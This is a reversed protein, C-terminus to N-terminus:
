RAARLRPFRGPQIRQITGLYDVAGVQGGKLALELGNTQPEDSYSICLPAPAGPISAIVQLASVKLQKLVAGSTDGGMIVIRRMGSRAVLSRTIRGLAEGIVGTVDGGSVAAERVRPDAPGLATYIVVSLGRNLYAAAEAVVRSEETSSSASGEASNQQGPREQKLLYDAQVAVEAFGGARAWEIQGATVAACSGSVVLLQSPRDSAPQGTGPALFSDAAGREQFWSAIGFAVEHSGVFLPPTGEHAHGLVAACAEELDEAALGDFLLLRHGRQELSYIAQRVAESGKHITRIDVLGGPLDTQRGLHRLVDSEGMPTVPHHAMSPHRDLRFVVDGGASAFLNGFLVFRGFRPAAPFVAVWRNPLEGLAIEIARGISGIYPASDFTSCVKYLLSAAGSERMLRFVPPLIRGLTETRESRATGAVGVARVGPFKERLTALNPAATFVLTSVGEGAFIEATSMTGTFDDGYFFNLLPVPSSM